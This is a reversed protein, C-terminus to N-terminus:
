AKFIVFLLRFFCWHGNIGSLFVGLDCCVSRRELLSRGLVVGVLKHGPLNV